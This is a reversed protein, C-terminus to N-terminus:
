FLTQQPNAPSECFLPSRTEMEGTARSISPLPARLREALSAALEVGAVEARDAEVTEMAPLPLSSLPAAM